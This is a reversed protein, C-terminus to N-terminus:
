KVRTFHPSFTPQQWPSSLSHEYTHYQFPFPLAAQQWGFTPQTGLMRHSPTQSPVTRRGTGSSAQTQTTNPPFSSNSAAHWIQTIHYSYYVAQSEWSMHVSTSYRHQEASAGGGGGLHVSTTPPPMGCQVSLILEDDLGRLALCM